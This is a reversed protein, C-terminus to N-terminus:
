RKLKLSEVYERFKEVDSFFVPAGDGERIAVTTGQSVAAGLHACHKGGGSLLDQQLEKETSELTDPKAANM